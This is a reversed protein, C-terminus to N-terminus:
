IRLYKNCNLSYDLTFEWCQISYKRVCVSVKQCFSFYLISGLFLTFADLYFTCHSVVTRLHVCFIIQTETNFIDRQVTWMWCHLGCYVSWLSSHLTHPSNHPNPSLLFFTHDSKNLPLTCLSYQSLLLQVQVCIFNNEQVETCFLAGEYTKITKTIQL